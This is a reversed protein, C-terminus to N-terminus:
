ADDDTDADDREGVGGLVLPGGNGNAQKNGQGEKAHIPGADFDLDKCPMSCRRPLPPMNHASTDHQPREQM